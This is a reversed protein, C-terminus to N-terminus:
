AEGEHMTAQRDELDQLIYAAMKPKYVSAVTRECDERACASSEM